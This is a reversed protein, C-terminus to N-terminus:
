SSRDVLAAHTLSPVIQKKRSVIGPMFVRNTDTATLGLAKFLLSRGKGVSWIESGEAVIDTVMLVVLECGADNMFSEMAGLIEEEKAAIVASDLTNVQSIYATINGFVFRKRDISILKDVSCGELSTSVKFMERGFEELEVEAVNALFKAAAKDEQTCTPSSFMLTDSLIAGLLAGSIRRTLAVNNERYMKFVITATSGVPEARIFLPADTQIDAVRHHDIIELISAEELGEVSQSRENHDILIVTKPRYDLMHRRSIIGALRNEKDVVPFNRHPSVKMVDVVDSVSTSLPFSVIGTVSMASRISIAQITLSLTKYFSHKVSIVAPGCIGQPEIGGTLIVAGCGLEAARIAEEIKAAVVVDKDGVGGEPLDAGIYLSGCLRGYKYTGGSESGDLIKLLNEYLVEYESIVEAGFASMYIKTLDNSTILGVIGLQDDVIPVIASGRVSYLLDWASKIPEDERLYVPEYFALDEVKLKVDELLEPVPLNFSQLVFKTEESVESLRYPKAGVYGLQRKLDAYAVASCVSDTDPNQHGFIYIESEYLNTDLIM